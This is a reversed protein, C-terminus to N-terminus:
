VCYAVIGHIVIIDYPMWVAIDCWTGQLDLPWCRKLRRTNVLQLLPALLPNPHAEPKNQQKNLRKYIVDSVYPINFDTHLAHNTVYWPANAISLTKSQPRHMIVINSKSVCGRQLTHVSYKHIVYMLTLRWVGHQREPQYEGPQWRPPRTVM